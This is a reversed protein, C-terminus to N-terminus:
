QQVYTVMGSNQAASSALLCVNDGTTATKFVWFGGDGSTVSGNALLNWGTAATAGGAMGATGTACVSGTGEVLAINDAVSSLSFQLFCIYTNKAATGTILQASGTLNILKATKSQGSCLDANDVDIHLNAGSPQTVVGGGGGGGGGAAGAAPNDTYGFVTVIVSGTGVISPTIQGYASIGASATTIYQGASTCSGITAASLIGGIVPSTLTGQVPDVAAASDVSLSCSSMTGVPVFHIRYYSIGRVDFGATATSGSNFKWDGAFQWPFGQLQQIKTYGPGVVQADSRPGLGALLPALAAIAFLKQMTKM